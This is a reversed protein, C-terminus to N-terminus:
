IFIELYIFHKRFLSNECIYVTITHLLLMQKNTLKRIKPKLDLWLWLRLKSYRRVPPSPANYFGLPSAFAMM